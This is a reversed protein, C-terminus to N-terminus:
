DKVKTVSRCTTLDTKHGFKSWFTVPCKTQRGTRQDFMNCAEFPPCYLHLSVATNSHNRNEVRHLGMSDNIYCVENVGIRSEAFSKLEEDQSQSETPWPFRVEFLEGELMKMFCHADSHDHISSGQGENWCLLMLNFKGNGEDVLNRTYRHRDFKAFHSWEQRNSKYSQMLEHIYEVNVRDDSFANHLERILEQLTNVVVPM